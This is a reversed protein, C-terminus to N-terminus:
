KKKIVINDDAALQKVKIIEKIEVNFPWGEEDIEKPVIKGKIQVVVMDTDVKKLPAVQDALEHMKTDIVVGYVQTTTKFVAADAYYLFEGELTKVDTSEKVVIGEKVVTELTKNEEKKCSFVVTLLLIGLIINKM